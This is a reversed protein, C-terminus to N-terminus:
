GWGKGPKGVRNHNMRRVNLDKDFVQFFLYHNTIIEITVVRIHKERDYETHNQNM